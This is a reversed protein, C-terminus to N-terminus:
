LKALEEDSVGASKLLGLLKALKDNPVKTVKPAGHKAIFAKVADLNAIVAKLKKVGLQIGPEEPNEPNPLTLVPHGKFESEVPVKVAPILSKM